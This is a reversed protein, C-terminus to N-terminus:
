PTHHSLLPALAALVCVAVVLGALLLTRRM